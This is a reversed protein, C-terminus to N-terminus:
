YQLEEAPLGKGLTVYEYASLAAVAGEAVATVVQDFKKKHPGATCDGAAFVGDINTEQGPGVVVYGKEDLRLGMSKLFDKPPESGIEIIVGEVSLRFEEGIDKRLVDVWEVSKSGGIRRVEANLVLEIRPDSRVKKIYVPFARFEDRRHILYVKPSYVTMLLAAQLAANGGGVVATVKGKFLPADCPACYTVGKGSFENEGPVGLKRRRSGVAVIVTKSVYTEGGMLTVKFSSGKEVRVVKDRVIPVRYKRIHQEFKKALDPGQVGILGPYDDVEGAETLAGGIEEGIIISKLGLRAAYLAASMGAPGAGIIVTDFESGTPPKRPM